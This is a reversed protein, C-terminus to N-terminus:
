HRKKGKEKQRKTVSRDRKQRKIVKREVQRM